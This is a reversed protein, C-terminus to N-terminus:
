EYMGLVGRDGRIAATKERIVCCIRVIKSRSLISDQGVRHFFFEIPNRTQKFISSRLISSGGDTIRWGDCWEFDLREMGMQVMDVTFSVVSDGMYQSCKIM